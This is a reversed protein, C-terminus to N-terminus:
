EYRFAAERKLDEVEQREFEEEMEWGYEEVHQDCCYESCYPSKDTTDWWTYRVYPNEGHIEDYLVFHEKCKPCEAYTYREVHPELPPECRLM